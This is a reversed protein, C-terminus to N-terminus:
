SCKGKKSYSVAVGAPAGVEHKRDRLFIKQETKTGTCTLVLQKNISVPLGGNAWQQAEMQHVSSVFNIRNM